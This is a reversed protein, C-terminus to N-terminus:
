QVDVHRPHEVAVFPADARVAPRHPYRRELDDLLRCIQRLASHAFKRPKRGAWRSLARPGAPTLVFAGAVLFPVGIIGPVIVGIVGATVLVWGAERPLEEIRRILQEDVAPGAQTQRQALSWTAVPPRATPMAAAPSGVEDTSGGPTAVDTQDPQENMMFSNEGRM